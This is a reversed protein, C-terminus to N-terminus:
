WPFTASIAGGGLYRDPKGRKFIMTSSAVTNPLYGNALVPTTAVLSFGLVLALAFLISFIRKM